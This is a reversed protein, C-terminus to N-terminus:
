CLLRELSAQLLPSNDDLAQVIGPQLIADPDRDSGPLLVLLCHGCESIDGEIYEM